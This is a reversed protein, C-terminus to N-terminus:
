AWDAAMDDKKATAGQPKGGVLTINDVRIVTATRKQGDKEWEQNDLTGEVLVQGGKALYAVVKGGRWYECSFWHTKDKFPDSVALRFKVVEKEGVKRIEPDSGLNGLAVYRQYSM